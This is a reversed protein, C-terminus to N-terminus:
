FVSTVFVARSHFANAARGVHCTYFLKSPYQSVIEPKYPPPFATTTTYDISKWLDKCNRKAERGFNKNDKCLKHLIIMETGVYKPM